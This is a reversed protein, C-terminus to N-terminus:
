LDRMAGSRHGSFVFCLFAGPAGLFLSASVLASVSVELWLSQSLIKEQGKERRAWSIGEHSLPRAGQNLPELGSAKKQPQLGSAAVFVMRTPKKKKKRTGTNVISYFGM